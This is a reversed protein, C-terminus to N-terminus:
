SIFMGIMDVDLQLQNKVQIQSLSATFHEAEQLKAAGSATIVRPPAINIERVFEGVASAIATADHPASPPLPRALRSVTEIQKYYAQPPEAAIALATAVQGILQYIQPAHQSSLANVGVIPAPLDKVDLGKALVPLIPRDAGWRAGLEFQVFASSASAPSLIGIFIPAALLEARLHEVTNAGAPLRFGEVSTCRIQEARLVLAVRLLEAVAQALEADQSSHSIFIDVAAANNM